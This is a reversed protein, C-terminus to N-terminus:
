GATSKGRFGEKAEEHAAYASHNHISEYSECEVAFWTVRPEARLALVSDRVIDEVFKPHDYSHETVSKEDERKLLPYIPASGQKELLDVVEEIWMFRGPEFRLRARISARQNHAGRASIEKSCPCVSVVPTEVGLVFDYHGDALRGAFEARYDLFSRSGSVPSIKPLFYRYALSIETVPANLRRSLDDLILRLEHGSIPQQSWALLTEIFRSMHTGRYEKPLEAALTARGLVQQYDGAMTRIQMPLHVGKVGVRQIDIGRSDPANQVDRM